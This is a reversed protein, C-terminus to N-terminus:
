KFIILKNIMAQRNPPTELVYRPKTYENLFSLLGAEFSNYKIKICISSKTDISNM